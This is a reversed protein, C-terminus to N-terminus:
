LSLFYAVVAVRQAVGKLDGSYLAVELRMRLREGHVVRVESSDLLRVFM